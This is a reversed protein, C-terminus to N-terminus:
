FMVQKSLSVTETFAAAHREGQIDADSQFHFPIFHSYFVRRQTLTEFM